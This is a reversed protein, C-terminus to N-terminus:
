GDMSLIKPHRSYIVLDGLGEILQRIEHLNCAAVAEFDNGVPSDTVLDPRQSPVQGGQVILIQQRETSHPPSGGRLDSFYQFGPGHSLQLLGM